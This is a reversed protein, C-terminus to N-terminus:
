RGVRQRHWAMIRQHLDRAAGQWSRSDSGTLGKTAQAETVQAQIVREILAATPGPLGASPGELCDTLTVRLAAAKPNAAHCLGPQQGLESRIASAVCRPPQAEDIWVSLCVTPAAARSASASLLLLPVLAAIEQM